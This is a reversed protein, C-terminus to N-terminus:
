IFKTSSSVFLANQCQAIEQAYSHQNFVLDLAKSKSMKIGPTNQEDQFLISMTRRTDKRCGNMDGRYGPPGLGARRIGFWGGPLMGPDCGRKGFLRSGVLGWPISSVCPMIKSHFYDWIPKQIVVNKEENIRNNNIKFLPAIRVLTVRQTEGCSMWVHSTRHSHIGRSAHSAHAWLHTKTVWDYRIFFCLHSHQHLWSLPHHGEAGGAWQVGVRCSGCLCIQHKSQRNIFGLM